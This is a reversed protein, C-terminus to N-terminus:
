TYIYIYRIVVEFFTTNHVTNNISIISSCLPIAETLNFFISQIRLQILLDRTWSMEKLNVKIINDELRIRCRAPPRVGAPKINLDQVFKREKEHAGVGKQM